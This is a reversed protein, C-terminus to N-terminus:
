FVLPFVHVNGMGHKDNNFVHHRSMAPRCYYLCTDPKQTFKFGLDDEDVSCNAIHLIEPFYATPCIDGHCNNLFLCFAM